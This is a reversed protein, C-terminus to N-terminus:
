GIWSYKLLRQLDHLVGRPDFPEPYHLVPRGAPDLLLVRHSPGGPEPLQAMWAPSRPSAAVLDPWQALLRGAAAQAEGAPAVWLRRVRPMNKYTAVQVRRLAVLRTECSDDCAGRTLLVLTWRGALTDPLPSDGVPQLGTLPLPEPLTTADSALEGHSHGGPRWGLAFLGSAVVFPLLFLAVILALMRLGGQPASAATSRASLTTM